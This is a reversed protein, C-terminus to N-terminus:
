KEKGITITSQGRHRILQQTTFSGDDKINILQGGRFPVVYINHDCSLGYSLRIGQYEATYNNMHDHGAFCGKTSGLEVMKEFMGDDVAPGCEKEFRRGTIIEGEDYAIKFEQMFFLFFALSPVVKSEDGNVDMAIEKITKEYWEVQNEHFHDYGGNVDDYSHTDMMILSTIVKGNEDEVNYYYNGMGDVNEDGREYICYTLSELYDSLQQKDALTVGDAVEGNEYKIDLGEHNGFVLGWPKKFTEMFEGFTKFATMNEKESTVDGTVMILDPDTTNIMETITKFAKADKKEDNLIHVDTIQLIKYATDEAQVYDKGIFTVGLCVASAAVALALLICLFVKVSKKM